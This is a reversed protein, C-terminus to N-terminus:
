HLSFINKSVCINIYFRRIQKIIMLKVIQMTSCRCDVKPSDSKGQYPKYLSYERKLYDKTNWESHVLVTQLIFTIVFVFKYSIEKVTCM